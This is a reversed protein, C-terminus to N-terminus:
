EDSAECDLVGPEIVKAHDGAFELIPHRAIVALLIVNAFVATDVLDLLELSDNM